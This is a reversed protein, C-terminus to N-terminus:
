MFIPECISVAAKNRVRVQFSCLTERDRLTDVFSHHMWTTKEAAACLLASSDQTCEASLLLLGCLLPGVTGNGRGSTKCHHNTLSM